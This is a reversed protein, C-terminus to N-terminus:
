WRRVKSGLPLPDDILINKLFRFYNRIALRSTTENSTHYMMTPVQVTAGSWKKKTNQVLRGLETSGLQSVSKGKSLLVEDKVQYPIEMVSCRTKLASVLAPNFKASMDRNRFIVMGEDIPKADVFPSTDIVILTKNDIKSKKLYAAIHTWSKGIEEETSFLTTGQYGNKYLAYIVGLSLANDIQGKLYGDQERATRAYAVPIDHKVAKMGQIFFLAEGMLMMPHCVEIVGEGLRDNTRPDYAFVTEGAFRKGLGELERRSSRNAEGYKIEKVYQAAYAYEGKGLSILGHRDIHACVIAAHPKEGYVELIGPHKVGRMGIAEFDKRLYEIFFQEHGVVAPVALYEMTKAIITEIDNFGATLIKEQPATDKQDNNATM